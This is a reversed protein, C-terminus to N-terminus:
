MSSKEIAGKVMYLRVIDELQISFSEYPPNESACLVEGEVDGKKLYKVMRYGSRTIILYVHGYDIYSEQWEKLIIIQGSKYRPYMSDGYINVADTCDRFEPIQIDIHNATLSDDFMEVGGCTADVDVWYRIGKKPVIEEEQSKLVSGEGTYIFKESVDPFKELILKEDFNGKKYWNCMTSPSVGLEKAFHIDRRFRLATRIKRLIESREM